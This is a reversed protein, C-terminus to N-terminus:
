PLALRMIVEGDGDVDGAPAFGLREYFQVSAAIDTTAIALELFHGFM